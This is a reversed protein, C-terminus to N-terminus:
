AVKKQYKSVNLVIGLSALSVIISSGGQSIFVLPDGTLPIIGLMSGINVFSQLIIWLVIGTVLLASFVNPARSAIRLGRAVFILYLFLLICSGIFGWEEAFVAFISDGMPEPLYNFKQVSQGFGRGFLKGSGVAILSQQIQYGAGQPDQAPHIFTEIRNHVYPVFLGLLIVALLGACAIGILHSWRAGSAILMGAGILAIIMLTGFDPQFILISGILALLVVYPVISHSITAVKKKASALWASFYIIFAIKMLEAPQFSFPGLSLWRRAGAHEFGIFPVFVLVTAVLSTILIHFAYEQWFSFHIRSCIYALVTGIALSILQNLAISSFLSAERTMLQLSASLFIFFGGLILICITTLLVTDVRTKM